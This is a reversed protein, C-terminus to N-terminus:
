GNNPEPNHEQINKVDYFKPWNNTAKMWSAVVTILMDNLQKVEEKPVNDLFGEDVGMDTCAWDALNEILNEATYKMMDEIKVPVVEATWYTKAEGEDEDEDEWELAEALADERTEHSGQYREEDSSWCYKVAM